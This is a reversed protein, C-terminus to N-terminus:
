LSRSTCGPVFYRYSTVATSVAAFSLALDGGTSAVMGYTACAEAQTPKVKKEGCTCFHKSHSLVSVRATIEQTSRQRKYEGTGAQALRNAGPHFNTYGDRLIEVRPRSSTQM